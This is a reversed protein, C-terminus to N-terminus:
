KKGKAPKEEPKAEVVKKIEMINADIKPLISQQMTSLLKFYEIVQKTNFSFQANEAVVNLFKVFDERDKESFKLNDM